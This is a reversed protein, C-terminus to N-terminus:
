YDGRVWGIDYVNLRALKMDPYFERFREWTWLGEDRSWDEGPHMDDFEDINGLERYGVGDLGYYSNAELTLIRRTLNDVDLVLLTHGQIGLRHWGQVLTWPEPLQDIDEVETGMGSEIAATVPSFLDNTKTIMMKNHLDLNWEFVDDGSNAWAGVLFAEAFCCCNTLKPPSQEINVGPLAQPYHPNDRDYRFGIFHRLQEILQSEAIGGAQPQATYDALAGQAAGYAKSLGPAQVHEPRVGPDKRRRAVAARRRSRVEEQGGDTALQNRRAKRKAARRRRAREAEQDKGQAPHNPRAKIRAAKGRRGANTARTQQSASKRKRPM